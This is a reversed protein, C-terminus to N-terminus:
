ATLAEFPETVGDCILDLDLVSGPVLVVLGRGGRRIEAAIRELRAGIGPVSGIAVGLEERVHRYLRAVGVETEDFQRRSGSGHAPVAERLEGSRSWLDLQRYTIGAAACLQESTIQM